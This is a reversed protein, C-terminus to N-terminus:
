ILIRVPDELLGKLTQLFASGVAGDVVRHDCSLTVKMVNGIQMQGNKVVVTEKIGGVALICADPPNIIATFEDIGFMGLNSITFTNGEWDKPQLEKNKAKGGLSKAENSIQSLSKSDAFRIVPVLLGEEVAVAMGIHIHENYRIKDGLWSSNVKPHQRLAAASAKIVMDNFSIKVPAVENMSKRAEIAKDMNIEMTLYFHPATFKSEALRKAIVKRMQSVKEEKYSEQGVSPAAPSDLATTAQAPAPTFNEVDRKIIRGGEGSGKVQAIDIGKDSALKKALPSAKLRDGDATTNSSSGSSSSSSSESKKDESKKESVTEKKEKVEEKKESTVMEEDGDANQEHAKLLTKYDADKEGIVAIVGDIEVSDGAEVGIHLLIGDDYSELEMTAKDTEVEAIIDGAKIEDGVKKLWSAIVGETMTDSMKPMTIVTANINSTDVKESKTKSEKKDDQSEEKEESKKEESKEEKKDSDNKSSTSGEGNAEKLLDEIDEDKEGIIAIVGNVPVADKEEVGIHLLVGEEYSELEMTAKDTEVEALIDGPKVEDGVKKLWAAIVGEEMTDSMKPMRIIEAM